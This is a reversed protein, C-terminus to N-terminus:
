DMFALRPLPRERYPLFRGVASMVLLLSVPRPYCLTSNRGKFQHCVCCYRAARVLAEDRIHTPFPM